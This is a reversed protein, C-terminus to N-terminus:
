FTNVSIDADLISPKYGKKSKVIYYQDDSSITATLTSIGAINSKIYEKLDISSFLRSTLKQLIWDQSSIYINEVIINIDYGGMASVTYEMYLPYDLMSRTIINTGYLGNKLQDQTTVIISNFTYQVEVVDAIALVLGLKIIANEFSSGIIGSRQLEWSNIPEGNLLVKEISLVPALDLIVYNEGGLANYIYSENISIDGDIFVDLTPQTISRLDWDSDNSPVLVTTFIEDYDRLQRIIWGGSDSLSALLAERVRLALEEDTEEDYGGTIAKANNCGDIGEISIIINNVRYPPVSGDVNVSISEVPVNIEYRKSVPNYFSTNARLSRRKTVQFLVEGDTTGCVTGVPIAIDTDPASYAYFLVSGRSSTRPKRPVGFNNALNDLQETEINELDFSLLQVIEDITLETKYLEDAVPQIMINWIPSKDVDMSPDVAIINQKMDDQIQQLTRAM